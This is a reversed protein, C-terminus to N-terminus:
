RKVESSFHFVPIISYQTYSAEAEGRNDKSESQGGMM